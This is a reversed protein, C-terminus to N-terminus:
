GQVLQDGAQSVQGSAQVGALAHGWLIKGLDHLSPLFGMVQTLPAPPIHGQGTPVGSLMVARERCGVVSGVAGLCIEERSGPVQGPHIGLVATFVGPLGDLTPDGSHHARPLPTSEKGSDDRNMGWM